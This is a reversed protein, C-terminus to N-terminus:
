FVSIIRFADMNAIKAVVDNINDQPLGFFFDKSIFFPTFM